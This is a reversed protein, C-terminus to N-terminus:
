GKSTKMNRAYHSPVGCQPCHGSRRIIEADLAKRFLGPLNVGLKRALRVKHKSARIVVREDLTEKKMLKQREKEERKLEKLVVTKLIMRNTFDSM